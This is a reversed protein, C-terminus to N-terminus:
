NKSFNLCEGLFGHTRQPKKGPVWLNKSPNSIGPVQPEKIRIKKLYM